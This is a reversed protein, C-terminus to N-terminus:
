AYLSDKIKGKTKDVKQAKIKNLAEIFYEMKVEKVNPDKRIASLGAERCIGAIEAGSFGETNEVLYKLDFDKALPMKKTHIQFIKARAKEDPLPIEILKEFRGPRLFAPDVLDLRNTAGIVVVNKLKEVGDMETLIQSVVKESVGSDSYYGRRPILSDIEDLFIICPAVERAKKFIKRINRESEGVWKSLLEPGKVAIFNADSENAVAKALLTKGTGPPGYFLIGKPVEIGIREFSEPNKLPLEILDRLEQKVNDLGGIDEWTVSPVEVLVERMGSPEVENMANLFDQQTVELTQLVEKSIKEDEKIFDKIKPLFRKLAKLASEKCLMQIDAGTFGYTIEAIKNLDVDKALPMGRTHIQLIEKRAQKDPMGIEIERDFRGPRRLAEDIDNPRNTAAIVIVNERSELGDLLTLLQSVVRKEVEGTVESRKPAIADIEDIFIIAPSNKQAEKFVSRLNEESQGYWKSMLEPGNITFFSANTENAVAKALLTKGTGPPGYLLVGKPPEINLQEFIEPHKLPLEVVERIKEVATKLGGIDEYTVMPVRVDVKVPKESVSINTNETVKVVGKPVTNVVLFNLTTGFLDVAVRNGSVLAKDMLKDTFFLRIDGSIKVNEMPALTISKANQFETKKINVKENLSVGANQRLIGDIRIIEDSEEEDETRLRWVTAATLKKGEISIIDGANLKLEEMNKGSIRAIGRGVDMKYAEAVRLQM